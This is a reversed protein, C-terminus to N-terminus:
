EIGALRLATALEHMKAPSLSGAPEILSERAVTLQWTCFIHDPHPLAVRVVGPRALGEDSGLPVEIGTLAASPGAEAAIDPSLAVERSLFAEPSLVVFGQKQADTAPAVIQIARLEGGDDDSDDSLLVLPWETDGDAWWVQGRRV